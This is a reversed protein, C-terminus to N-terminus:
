PNSTWWESASSPFVILLPKERFGKKRKPQPFLNMSMDM